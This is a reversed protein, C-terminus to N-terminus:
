KENKNEMFEKYSEHGVVSAIHNLESEIVDLLFMITKYSKESM